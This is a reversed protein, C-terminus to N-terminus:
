PKAPPTVKEWPGNWRWGKPMGGFRKMDKELAARARAVSLGAKRTLAELLREFYAHSAVTAHGYQRIYAIAVQGSNNTPCHCVSAQWMTRLHRERLDNYGAIMGAVVLLQITLLIKTDRTM